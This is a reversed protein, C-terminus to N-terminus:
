KENKSGGFGITRESEIVYQQLIERSLTIAAGKERRARVAADIIREATDVDYGRFVEEVEGNLSITGVGYLKQMGDFVDKIVAPLEESTVTQLNIEDCYAKLKQANEEDCFCIPLVASLNLTVNPNHLHFKARRTSQLISKVAELKRQPIDGYFFLMFRNDSDEDISRVFVNNASPELDFESLEAVDIIEYHTGRSKASIARAYMNLVYKDECCLCLPRYAPLSRLDSNRLAHAIAAIEAERKLAIKSLGRESVATANENSLKLPLDSIACLLEKHPTFVAKEKDGIYLASSHLIRAYKPDFTERKLVGSNFSKELLKVEEVDEDDAGHYVNSAIKYLEEFPTGAVVQRLRAVNLDRGEKCYYLLALTGISDNWDAAKSLTKIGLEKNQNLFIGEYQLIGMMRLACVSGGNAAASLCTYLANRSVEADVVLKYEHALLIANGKIRTVEEWEANAKVESGILVSYKQVRQYQMFEKETAIGKTIDNETLRYLVPIRPEPILFIKGLVRFLNESDELYRGLVAKFLFYESLFLEVTANLM